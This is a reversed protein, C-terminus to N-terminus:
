RALEEAQRMEETLAGEVAEPLVQRSSWISVSGFLHTRFFPDGEMHRDLEARDRASIIMLSGKVRGAEDILPGGYRFMHQRQSVYRLHDARTKRRAEAGDPKDLCYLIFDM